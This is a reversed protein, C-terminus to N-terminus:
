IRKSCDVTIKGKDPLIRFACGEAKAFSGQRCVVSYQFGNYAAGIQNGEVSLFPLEANPATKLELAWGKASGTLEFRDEYFTLSFKHGANDPFTAKLVNGPLESVEPAGTALPNGGSDVIRLGAKDSCASWVFGDVM